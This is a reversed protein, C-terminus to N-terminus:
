SPEAPELRALIEGILFISGAACVTRDTSWARALAAMAVPEVDVALSPARRRAREAVDAAAMARPTAPQTCVLRTAVPLLPALMGDINKDQMAAFVIPVGEPHWDRLYAALAAAGAPNHAADLLLRRGGSLAVLELRGRWRVDTLGARIADPPVPLGAGALEELLRVATVANAVQHRGRLALRVPDYRHQPTTVAITLHGDDAAREYVEVADEARVLRAGRDRAVREIVEVAERGTEGVVVVMGAKIVGAKEVAIEPITSGLFREHDLAISTIAAAVPHVVNTADFRGGMGVELVAVAVHADRFLCFAVATTAEFFTPPGELRRAAILRDIAALVDVAAQRLRDAAVPQGDVVFREDLAVLHPSTYRAARYGAARLATEIMATVSGKGNTGAVIISRFADQPRDLADCLAHVTELGLRIGYQELDFLRAIPDQM